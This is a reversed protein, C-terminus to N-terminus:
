LALVVTGKSQIVQGQDCTAEVYWVYTDTSRLLNIGPQLGNWGLSAVNPAFNKRQFIVQGWRDYIVFRNIIKYGRTVPYFIDNKGDGNPTFVTPIYLNAKDCAVNLQVTDNAKCGDSSVVQISYTQSIQAVGSPIPCNTCSLNNIAPMWLYNNINNSYTANFTFNSNFPISLDPGANVTAPPFTNVVAFATDSFCGVSDSVIVSFNTTDSVIAFPNPANPSNLLNSPQWQFVGTPGALFNVSQGPCVSTDTPSVTALFPRYVIVISTDFSKCGFSNTAQAIYTTTFSPTALTTDCTSCALNTTTLWLLTDTTFALLQASQGLCITDIVPLTRIRPMPFVNVTQNATQKCNNIDTVVL